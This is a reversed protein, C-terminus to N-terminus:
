NRSAISVVASTSSELSVTEKMAEVLTLLLVSMGDSLLKIDLTSDSAASPLRAGM